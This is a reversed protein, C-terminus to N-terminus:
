AGMQVDRHHTIKGGEVCILDFRYGGEYGKRAIWHRAARALARRKEWNFRMEAPFNKDTEARAKVEIFVLIQDDPDYAILDIEERGVRVNRAHLEYGQARLYHAAIQEGRKGVAIHRAEPM